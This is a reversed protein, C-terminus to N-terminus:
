APTPELSISTSSAASANRYLKWTCCALFGCRYGFGLAVSSEMQYEFASDNLGLKELSKQLKEYDAANVPYLGTFVTPQVQKFGPLPKDAARKATTITDGVKVESATKINAMLYGVGGAELSERRTPLPAFVGVEKVEFEEGTAMMRIREGAKLEGDYIRM